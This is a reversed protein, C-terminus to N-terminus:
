CTGKERRKRLKSNTIKTLIVLGEGERRGGGSRRPLPLDVLDPWHDSEHPPYTSPLNFFCVRGKSQYSAEVRSLFAKSVKLLLIPLQLPKVKSIGPSFSHGKDSSIEESFKKTKEISQQGVNESEM